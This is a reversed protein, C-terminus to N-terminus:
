KNPWTMIKNIRFQAKGFPRAQEGQSCNRLEKIQDLPNPGKGEPSRAGVHGVFKDDKRILRLRYGAAVMFFVPLDPDSDSSSPSSLGAMVTRALRTPKWLEYSAPFFFQAGDM